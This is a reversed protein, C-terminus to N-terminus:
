HSKPTTEPDLKRSSEHFQVDAHEHMVAILTKAINQHSQELTDRLKKEFDARTLHEELRSAAIDASITVAIGVLAGWPATIALSTAAPVGAATTTGSGAVAAGAAGAVTASLLSGAQEALPNVVTQFLNVIVSSIADANEEAVSDATPPQSQDTKIRQPQRIALTLLGSRFTKVALQDVHLVPAEQLDWDLEADEAVPGASVTNPGAERTIFDAFRQNEATIATQWTQHLADLDRDFAAELASQTEQPHLVLSAYRAKLYDTLNNTISKILQDGTRAAITNIPEKSLGWVAEGMLVYKTTFRFYWGGYAPVRDSITSFVASVDAELRTKADALTEVRTQELAKDEAVVFDHYKAGDVTTQRITGDADRWRLTKAPLKKAPAPKGPAAAPTAGPAAPQQESVPLIPSPSDGAGLLFVGGVIAAVVILGIALDRRRRRETMTTSPGAADPTPEPSQTPRDGSTM